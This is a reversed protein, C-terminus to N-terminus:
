WKEKKVMFRDVKEYENIPKEFTDFNRLPKIRNAHNAFEMGKSGKKIGKHKKNTMYDKFFEFYEKANVALTAYCPNDISEVEYLGLKKRDRPSEQM